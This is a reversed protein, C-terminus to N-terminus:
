PQSIPPEHDLPNDTQFGEAAANLLDSDSSVFTFTSRDSQPTMSKAEMAASLQVSDYGRLGHARALEMARLLIPPTVHILRFLERWERHFTHLGNEAQSQSLQQRNLRRTIASVFEPGVIWAAFFTTDDDPRLLRRVWRSGPEEVYRKVVASADLFYAAM